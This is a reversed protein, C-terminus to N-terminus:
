GAKRQAPPRAPRRDDPQCRSRPNAPRPPGADHAVHERDVQANDTTKGKGNRPVGAATTKIWTFLESKYTLGWAEIVKLTDPPRPGYVWFCVAAKKALLDPVPMRSLAAVDMTPYHHQPSRGEGKASYGDFRLPLDVLVLDFPGSPFPPTTARRELHRKERCAPSCTVADRRV